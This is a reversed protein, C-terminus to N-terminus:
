LEKEIFDAIEAFTSGNDNLSSLTYGATGINCTNGGTHVRADESINAWDAVANPLLSHGQLYDEDCHWTNSTAKAHLDCLVGLCCFKNDNRLQGKGQAYTGSRLADIWQKKIEPNM